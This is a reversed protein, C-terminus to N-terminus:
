GEQVMCVSQAFNKGKQTLYQVEVPMGSQRAKDITQQMTENDTIISTGQVDFRMWDGVVECFEILGHITKPDSKRKPTKIPSAQAKDKAAPLDADDQDATALGLAALMTYRQLYTVSSGIQQIRNKSGSDDPPGSLTTSERHGMAHTVHCTVSVANQAQHTEWSVSLGHRSLIATVKESIRGLTAHTYRTRGKGTAYDVLSDKPIVSPVECKFAAMAATYAKRAENAEYREQLDMLRGLVEPTAQNNLAIELLAQPSGAPPAQKDSLEMQKADVTVIEHEM